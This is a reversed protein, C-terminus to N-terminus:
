LEEKEEYADWIRSGDFLYEGNWYWLDNKVEMYLRSSISNRNELIVASRGAPRRGTCTGTKVIHRWTCRPREMAGTCRVMFQYNDLAGVEKVARVQRRLVSYDAPIRDDAELYILVYFEAWRSADQRFERATRIEARDFGLTRVALLIGPNSGGLRCIEEYMAIRSRFDEPDEGDYRVLNRDAGHVPLMDHCCTAVMGEDRARLIDEKVEDFRRGYVRCFAYWMNLSRKVRKLPTTLLYWMYEAFNELM